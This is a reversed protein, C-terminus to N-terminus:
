DFTLLTTLFGPEHGANPPVASVPLTSFGLSFKSEPSFLLAPFPASDAHCTSRKLSFPAPRGERGGERFGDMWGYIWGDMWGDM